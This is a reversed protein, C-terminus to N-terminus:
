KVCVCHRGCPGGFEGHKGIFETEEKQRLFASDNIKEISFVHKLDQKRGGHRFKFDFRM